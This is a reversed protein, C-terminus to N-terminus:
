RPSNHSLHLPLKVAAQSHSGRGGRLHNYQRIKVFLGLNGCGRVCDCMCIRFKNPFHLAISNFLAFGM